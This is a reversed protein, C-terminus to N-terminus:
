ASRASMRYIRLLNSPAIFVEQVQGGPGGRGLGQWGYSTEPFDAAQVHAWMVEWDAPSYATWAVHQREYRRLWGARDEGDPSAIEYLLLLGDEGVIRQLQRMVVLKELTPLHHLSLGIWAVDVPAVHDGLAEVFDAQQLTVPCALGALAQRALELAAASLDIGHYHAIRTGQLAATSTSCRCNRPLPLMTRPLRGLIQPWIGATRWRQYRSHVTEWSGFQEPLDRWAAGTRAVWLM